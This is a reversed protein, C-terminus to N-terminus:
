IICFRDVVAAVGDNRVLLTSLEDLEKTKKKKMNEFPKTQETVGVPRSISKKKKSFVDCLLSNRGRQPTKTKRQGFLLKKEGEEEHTNPRREDVGCANFCFQACVSCLQEYFYFFFLLLLLLIFLHWQFPASSTSNM